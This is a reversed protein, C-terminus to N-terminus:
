PFVVVDRRKTDKNKRQVRFRFGPVKFQPFRM